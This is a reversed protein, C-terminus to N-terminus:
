SLPDNESLIKRRENKDDDNDCVLAIKKENKKKQLYKKRNKRWRERQAKEEQNSMEQINKKIKNERQRKYKAKDKEKQLEYLVPDNKIRAYRKRQALSQAAKRKELNQKSKKDSLVNVIKVLQYFFINIKINDHNSMCKARTLYKKSMQIFINM